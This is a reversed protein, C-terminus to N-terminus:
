KPPRERGLFYRADLALKAPNGPLPGFDADIAVYRRRGAVQIWATKSWTIRWVRGGPSRIAISKASVRADFDKDLGRGSCAESPECLLAAGPEAFAVDHIKFSQTSDASSLSVEYRADVESADPALTLTKRITAGAYSVDPAEYKLAVGGDLLRDISYRRTNLGPIRSRTWGPLKHGDWSTDLPEQEAFEDRLLGGPTAANFGDKKDVLQFIRGGSAPDMVVRLKSNELVLEQEGDRDFDFPYVATRRPDIRLIEVPVDIKKGIIRTRVTPLPSGPSTESSFGINFRDIGGEDTVGDVHLVADYLGVPASVRFDVRQAKDGDFTISREQPDFRIVSSEWRLGVRGAVKATMGIPRRILVSITRQPRGDVVFLSPYTPLEVDPRLRYGVPSALDFAPPLAPAVYPPGAPIKPEVFRLVLEQIPRDGKGPPITVTWLGSNADFAVDKHTQGNLLCATPAKALRLRVAGQFPARFKLHLEHFGSDAYWSASLPGALELTTSYLEDSFAHTIHPPWDPRAFRPDDPPESAAAFLLELPMRLPLAISDRPPVKVDGLRVSRAADYPDTASVPGNKGEASLNTLFVWGFNGKSSDRRGFALTGEDSVLESAYLGAPAVVHRDSIAAVSDVIRGGKKVYDRLKRESARSLKPTSPLRLITPYRTLQELGESQPDVWDRALQALTAASEARALDNEIAAITTTSAHALDLAEEPRLLAADPWLHASALLPGFSRVLEGNREVFDAKPGRRAAVDLPSEWVYYRNASPIEQGAPYLTDQPPFYNLLKVGNQILVRSASLTNIPETTMGYPEDQMGFFGANFEVVAPPFDASTKLPQVASEIDSLSATSLDPGLFRQYWQSMLWLPDKGLAKEGLAASDLEAPNLYLPLDVGDKRMEDRLWAMYQWFHAGDRRSGAPQDDDLQVLIIPGGKEASYPKIIREVVTKYWRSTERLHTPNDLWGKAAADPDAYQLSSLPPYRGELISRRSMKYEPRELLWDPYGGNRWEACIYPGPRVIARLHLRAILALLGLLDKRPNGHGDFDLEGPKSEHWNWPVYLDITNIGLRSYEFLSREWLDRPIRPYLFAASHVFFPQGYIRFEPYSNVSVIEVRKGQAHALPALLLLLPLLRRRM